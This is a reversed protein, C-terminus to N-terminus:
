SRRPTSYVTESALCEAGGRKGAGKAKGSRYLPLPTSSNMSATSQTEAPAGHPATAPTTGVPNGRVDAGRDKRRRYVVELECCVTGVSMSCGHDVSSTLLALETVAALEPPVARRPPSSTSPGLGRPRSSLRGPPPAKPSDQPSAAASTAPLSRALSFQEAALRPPSSSCCSPFPCDVCRVGKVTRGEFCCCGEEGLRPARRKAAPRPLLKPAPRLPLLRRERIDMAGGRPVLRSSRDTELAGDRGPEASGQARGGGGAKRRLLPLLVLELGLCAM